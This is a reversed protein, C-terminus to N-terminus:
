PFSYIFFTNYVFSKLGSEQLYQFNRDYSYKEERGSLAELGLIEVKPPNRNTTLAGLTNISVSYVFLITFLVPLIAYKRLYTLGISIFIGGIAYSPILYRSGFAWGGWPDGWLSYLLLDAGIIGVLVVAMDKKKKYLLFAGPIALFMVPTFWVISRDRGFFQITFGNLINRTKFFGTATKQQRTPDNLLATDNKGANKPAVPKGNEDIERVGSVTGALQLPNGYSANNFWLFFVLPLVIGLVSLAKLLSFSIKYAEKEVKVSFFKIGAAIAIPLMLILNPNDVPVSLAFLSFIIFLSLINNWRLLLYISALILFTSIQHQFLSVSYAFAPSAFLFTIAGLTAALPHAGLRLAISRVLLINLLAFLAIVAYSGVQVSGFYKGVLYGPIIAYSVGPAFLSVYKGDKYGLDPTAFRAIPLSFSYSHDEILSYTLAYRGREPSLEFPGNDRWSLANMDTVTPNGVQGRVSLALIM